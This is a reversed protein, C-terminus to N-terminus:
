LTRMIKFVSKHTTHHINAITETFYMIDILDSLLIATKKYFTPEHEPLVRSWVLDWTKVFNIECKINQNLLIGM